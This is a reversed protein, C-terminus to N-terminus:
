STLVVGKRVNEPSGVWDARAAEIKEIKSNDVPMKLFEIEPSIGVAEWGTSISDEFDRYTGTLSSSGKM